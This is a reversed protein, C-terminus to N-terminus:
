AYINVSKGIKRDKNREFVDENFNLHGINMIYIFTCYFGKYISIQKETINLNKNM